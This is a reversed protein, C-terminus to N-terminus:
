KYNKMYRAYKKGKATQLFQERQIRAQEMMEERYEKYKQPIWLQRETLEQKKEDEILNWKSESIQLIYRTMIIQDENTYQQKKVRYKYNWRIFSYIYKYITYPLLIIRIIFIEQIKLKSYGGQINIDKKLEDIIEQKSRNDEEQLRQNVMKKFRESQQFQNIASEHMSIRALYQIGSFFVATAFLVVFPNTQPTYVAKYYNYYHYYESQNPNKLFGDYSSRLDQSKLIEYARVIKQYILKTDEGRHISKDPHYQRSLKRYSKKIEEISSNRDVKLIEYCNDDGCYM